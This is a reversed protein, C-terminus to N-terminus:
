KQVILVKLNLRELTDTDSTHLYRVFMMSCLRQQSALSSIGANQPVHLNMGTNVLAKM